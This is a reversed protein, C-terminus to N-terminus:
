EDEESNEMLRQAYGEFEDKWQPFRTAINLCEAAAETHNGDHAELIKVLPFISM